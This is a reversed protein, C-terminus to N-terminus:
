SMPLLQSTSREATLLPKWISSIDLGCDLNIRSSQQQIQLAEVVMRKWYQLARARVRAAECDIRHDERWAHVAIGNNKNYKRVATKHETVRKQITRGIEGIYVQECDMCPVEYVVGKKKEDPISNKVHVLSQRLTNSSKFITKIKQSLGHVVLGIAKRLRGQLSDQITGIMPISGCRGRLCNLFLPLLYNEKQIYVAETLLGLLNTAGQADLCDELGGVSSDYLRYVRYTPILSTKWQRLVNCVPSYRPNPVSDRM